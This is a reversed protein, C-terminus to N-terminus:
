ASRGCGAELALAVARGMGMSRGEDWAAWWAADALQERTTAMAAQIMSSNRPSLLRSGTEERVIQAAAFLRVARNSDGEDAALTAVGELGAVLNQTDQLQQAMEVYEVLLPRARQWERLLLYVYALSGAAITEWPVNGVAAYLERAEEILTVADSFHGEESRALGLDLLARALDNRSGDARASSLSEELYRAARQHDGQGYAAVALLSLATRVYVSDGRDRALHLLDEMLTVVRTQDGMILALGAASSLAKMRVPASLDSGLALGTDLWRRGESFRGDVRWYYELAAALRLAREVEGRDLLWGLAARLNDRDAQLREIWTEQEDTQLHPEAEEALKVFYMAHREGVQERAASANLREVAYERITELMSFRPEDQGEQRVLSKDVLSGMAEILDLDDGGTCIEEAAEFTWGGSFVALRTFLLQEVQTLLSYSWEIAGRLTQQKAPRDRAGGTLLDLRNSLRQLLTRPPFLKIRAAALEIALPLGDLRACIEAVAAANEPTITFGPKVARAQQTFLAISEHQALEQLAPLHRLDPIGMPPVPYENERSLHLPVRSTILIRLERCADLLHAIAGRAETLHEFNDLILLLHKSELHEILTDTLNRHGEEKVHLVHAIAPVVEVPTDLASLDTFSVGDRYDYLLANGAQLALRTKGTGGPGTLTLLRIHPDRLLAAIAAVEHDRGIFPTPEDPLNNPHTVLIPQLPPLDRPIEGEAGVQVVRVPAPLGKLTVEGRDVFILGETRRALHVVGESALIEGAGAISCLRAALNLAGGRYGGRVPVPEGADLGVGVRLPLSPDDRTVREFARQLAVAGRLANRASAFVAMAEDGRLELVRGSYETLVEECLAAFRDALRAAGADGHEATFRTYGRVDAILFTLLSSDAPLQNHRGISAADAM